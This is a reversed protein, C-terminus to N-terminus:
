DLEARGLPCGGVGNNAADLLDKREEITLGSDIGAGNAIALVESSTYAYDVDGSLANLYAAAAQRALASHDPESHHTNGTVTSVRQGFIGTLNSVNTETVTVDSGSGSPADDEVVVYCQGPQTTISTIITSGAGFGGGAPTRSITFHGATNGYKCVRFESPTPTEDVATGALVFSPRVLTPSVPGTVYARGASGSRAEGRYPRPEAICAGGVISDDVGSSRSYHSDDLWIPLCDERVHLAHWTQSHRVRQRTACPPRALCWM